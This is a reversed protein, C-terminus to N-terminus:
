APCLPAWSWSLDLLVATVQPHDSDETLATCDSCHQDQVGPRASEAKWNEQGWESGVYQCTGTGWMGKQGTMPNRSARNSTSM